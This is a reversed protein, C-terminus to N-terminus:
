PMRYKAVTAENITFGLGPADTVHIYGDKAVYRERTLEHGCTMGETRRQNPFQGQLPEMIHGPPTYRM